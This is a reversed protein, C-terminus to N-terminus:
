GQVPSPDSFGNSINSAKFFYFNGRQGMVKEVWFAVM